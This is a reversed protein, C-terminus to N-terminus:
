DKPAKYANKAERLRAMIAAEGAAVAEAGAWARVTESATRMFVNTALEDGITSPLTPRGAARAARAEALRAATRANDPEVHLCFHLNSITYETTSM